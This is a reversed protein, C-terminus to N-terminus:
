MINVDYNIVWEMYYDYDIWEYDDDIGNIGYDDYDDNGDDVDGYADYYPNDHIVLSNM